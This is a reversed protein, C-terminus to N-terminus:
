PRVGKLRYKKDKRVDNPRESRKGPKFRPGNPLRRNLRTVMDSHGAGLGVLAVAAALALGSTLKM